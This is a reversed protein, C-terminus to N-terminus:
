IKGEQLTRSATTWQQVGSTGPELRLPSREKKKGLSTSSKDLFAGFPNRPTRLPKRPSFSSKRRHGSPPGSSKRPPGSWKRPTDSTSGLPERHNGSPKRANGPFRRKNPDRGTMSSESQSHVLRTSGTWPRKNPDKRNPSVEQSTM